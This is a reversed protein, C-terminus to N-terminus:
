LDLQLLQLLLLLLWGQNLLKNDVVSLQHVINPPQYDVVLLQRVINPLQSATVFGEVVGEGFPRCGNRRQLRVLCSSNRRKLLLLGGLGNLQLGFLCGGNRRQLRFLRSNIRLQLVCEGLQIRCLTHQSREKAPRQRVPSATLLLALPAAITMMIMAMTMTLHCVSVALSRDYM